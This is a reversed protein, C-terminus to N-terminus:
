EEVIDAVQKLRSIHAKMNEPTVDYPKGKFINKYYELTKTYFEDPDAQQLMKIGKYGIAWNCQVSGASSLRLRTMDARLVLDILSGEPIGIEKALKKRRAKTRGAELLALSHDCQVAKLRAVYDLTKKDDEAVLKNMLTDFPLYKNVTRLVFKLDSPSIDAQKAFSDAADQNSVKDLFEMLRKIGVKKIKKFVDRDRQTLPYSMPDLKESGMREASTLEAIDRDWYERIFSYKIRKGIHSAFYKDYPGSGHLGPETFDWLKDLSNEKAM